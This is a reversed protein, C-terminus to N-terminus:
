AASAQEGASGTQWTIRWIGWAAFASPVFMTVLILAGVSIDGAGAHEVVHLAHFLALLVTIGFAIWRGAAAEIVCSLIVPVASLCLIIVLMDVPPLGSVDIPDASLARLLELVILAVMGAFPVILLSGLNSQNSM